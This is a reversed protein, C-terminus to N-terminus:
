TLKTWVEGEFSSAIVYLKLSLQSNCGTSDLNQLGALLRFARRGSIIGSSIKQGESANVEESAKFDAEHISRARQKGLKVFM